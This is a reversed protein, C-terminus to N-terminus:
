SRVFRLLEGMEGADAMRLAHLYRARAGGVRVVDASGWSFSPAGLSELLADTALRSQRGNGNPFPHISVLRHHFRAGVEDVPYTTQAIWHAVDALLDRLQVAILHPPVGLNRESTRFRGAWGWTQDFMRRHLEQQFAVTLVPAGVRRRRLWAVARHINAQEWADLQERTSIHAPLLDVAEDADIPTNGAPGTSGERENM